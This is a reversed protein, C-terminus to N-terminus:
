QLIRETRTRAVTMASLITRSGKGPRLSRNEARAASVLRGVYRRSIRCRYARAVEGVSKGYDLERMTAIKLERPYQQRPVFM